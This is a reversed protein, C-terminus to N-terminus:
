LTREGYWCTLLYLRTYRYLSSVNSEGQALTGTWQDAHHRMTKAARRNDYSNDGHRHGARSYHHCSAYRRCDTTQSTFLLARTTHALCRTQHPTDDDDTATINEIAFAM